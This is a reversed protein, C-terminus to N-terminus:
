KIYQYACFILLSQPIMGGFRPPEGGCIDDKVEREDIVKVRGVGLEGWEHSLKFVLSM